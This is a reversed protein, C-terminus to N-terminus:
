VPQDIAHHSIISYESACVLWFQDLTLECFREKLRSDMCLESNEEREKMMLKETSSKSEQKFPDRIWDYDKINAACPFYCERREKLTKLHEAYVARDSAAQPETPALPFMDMSCQELAERWLILKGMFRLDQRHIIFHKSEQGSAQRKVLQSALIHRCLLGAKRVM